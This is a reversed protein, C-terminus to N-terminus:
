FLRCMLRLDGVIFGLVWMLLWLISFGFAYGFRQQMTREVGLFPLLFILILGILGYWFYVTNGWECSYPGCILALLLQSIFMFIYIVYLTKM